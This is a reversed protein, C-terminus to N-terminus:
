PQSFNGWWHSCIAQRFIVCHQWSIKDADKKSHTGCNNYFQVKLASKHGHQCRKKEQLELFDDHDSFPQNMKALYYATRFVANTEALVTDSVARVLNGKWQAGSSNRTGQVDWATQNQEEILGPSNTQKLRIVPDQVDGVGGIYCNKKRDLCWHFQDLQLYCLRSTFLFIVKNILIM